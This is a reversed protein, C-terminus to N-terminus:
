FHKDNQSNFYFKNLKKEALIEHWIQVDMGKIVLFILQSRTKGTKRSQCLDDMDM